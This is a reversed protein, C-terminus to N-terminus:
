RHDQKSVYTVEQNLFELKITELGTLVEAKPNLSKPLHTIWFKHFPATADMIEEKYKREQRMAPAYSGEMQAALTPSDIFVQLDNIGHEALAVSGALLAEYDRSHKSEKFNLRIAYSRITEDPSGLIMGIGLGEKVVDKGTWVSGEEVKINMQVKQIPHKFEALKPVFKDTAALKELDETVGEKTVMHRLFKGKDIGFTSANPDVKINVRKLKSLTEEVDQILSYKNKSKIVIEELYVEMNWGKQDALVKEMMRQHTVASNKLGLRKGEKSFPYMDKACVKNLSSYDVQVKWAGSALWTPIANSVWEPNRVKRIIGEKLWRFVKDKLAQRGDPTMPRRKHVIPEAEIMGELIIPGDTLHGRPIASFTLEETLGSREGEFPRKQIRGGRIMNIVKINSRRQGGNRQNNKRIDKVLRTLKGLSRGGRHKEYSLNGESDQYTSHFHREQKAGGWKRNQSVNQVLCDYVM